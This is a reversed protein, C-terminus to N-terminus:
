EVGAQIDGDQGTDACDIPSGAADWCQIQGTQPVPAVPAPPKVERKGASVLPVWAGVWITILVVMLTADVSLWPKPV